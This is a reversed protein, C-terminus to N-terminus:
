TQTVKFIFIVVTSKLLEVSSNLFFLGHEEIAKRLFVVQTVVIVVSTKHIASHLVVLIGLFVELVCYFKIGVVGVAEEVSAIQM